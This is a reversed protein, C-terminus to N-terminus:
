AGTGHGDAFKLAPAEGCGTLGAQYPNKFYQLAFDNCGHSQESDRLQLLQGRGVQAFNLGQIRDM